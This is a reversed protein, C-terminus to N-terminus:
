FVPLDVSPLTALTVNVSFLNVSYPNPKNTSSKRSIKSSQNLRELYLASRFVCSM